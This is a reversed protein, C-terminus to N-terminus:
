AYIQRLAEYAVIGVSTALNLSREGPTMPIRLAQEPFAAIWDAPLGRDESGFVLLTRPTFRAQTYTRTARTSLYFVQWDPKEALVANFDSVHRIALRGMYDMGARALYKDSLRFGLDGVLFLELGACVCLRAINGTNQPIRPEVLVIALSTTPALTTSPPRSFPDTSLTM